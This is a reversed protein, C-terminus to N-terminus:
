FSYKAALTIVDSKAGIDQNKGYREYELSVAVKPNFNYQAGVGAYLETKSTDGSLLSDSYNRKNQAAGLKGFVSFQENIPASAKGAVYYSKGDSTGTRNIGNLTYNYDSSRFDTYGVEVGFTQDFEYGGFIKGSTKYGDSSSSTTGPISASHDANAIGVGVYPGPQAAQASGIAATAAILAFILKKM